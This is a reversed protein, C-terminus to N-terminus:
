KHALRINRTWLTCKLFFKSFSCIKKIDEGMNNELRRMNYEALTIHSALKNNERLWKIYGKPCSTPLCYNADLLDTNSLFPELKKFDNTYDGWWDLWDLIINLARRTGTRGGAYSVNNPFSRVKRGTYSTIGKNVCNIKIPKEGNDCTVYILIDSGEKTIKNVYHTAM